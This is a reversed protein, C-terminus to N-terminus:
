SPVLGGVVGTAGEVIGGASGKSLGSYSGYAETYGPYKEFLQSNVKQLQPCAKGALLQIIKDTLPAMAKEVDSFMTGLVDPASAQIIQLVFCELNNGNLLTASNFVGGTLDAVDVGVFTNPKGTNGGFSLLRPYYAAHEVVDLLFDPISFDNDTPRKYWNEPIREWGQKVVFNNPSSGEVGFFSAFTQRSLYGEPYQESHNAMMRPPFSYAAPSVLIGAFPSYFFYGNTTLSEDFRRKHFPALATYQEPAPTNEPIAYYYDIFRDRQVHFNNGTVYLDGRTASVDSEYKNHSGSLGSPSGLLGLGNLINQSDKTPGGISYGPNTSLPNGDFVTGYVALFGGLDLSMGYVENTARIITVMDAVGNHPLYGHNALANLGPCPGRQDGAKLNPPVFAYEGDVRIRQQKANFTASKKTKPSTTGPELQVERKQTQSFPCAETSKQSHQYYTLLQEADMRPFASTTSLLTTVALALTHYKM